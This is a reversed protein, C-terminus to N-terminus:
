TGDPINIEWPCEQWPYNLNRLMIGAKEKFADGSDASMAFSLFRRGVLYNDSLDRWSNFTKRLIRAAPMIREWAEEESLYGVLYGWRCLTVYRSYDFGLLSKAGLRSREKRVIEVRYDPTGERRLIPIANKDGKEEAELARAIADFQSRHGKTRLSELKDLLDERRGIGWSHYMLWAFNRRRKEDERSFTGLREHQGYNMEVLLAGTALAWYRPTGPKEVSHIRWDGNVELKANPGLDQRARERFSELLPPNEDLSKLWYANKCRGALYSRYLWYDHENQALLATATNTRPVAEGRQYMYALDEMSEGDGRAAGKKYWDVAQLLDKPVGSGHRYIEGLRTCAAAHGDAAAKRYWDVTKDANEPLGKDKQFGAGLEYAAEVHGQRAAMGFLAVAQKREGPDSSNHLAYGLRYRAEADKEQAAAAYYALAEALNVPVGEGLEYAHGLRTNRNTSHVAFESGPTPAAPPPPPSSKACGWVLFLPLSSCVFPLLCKM